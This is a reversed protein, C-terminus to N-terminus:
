GREVPVAVENRRLFPLSFPPDYFYAVAEGSATWGSATLSQRLQAKRRDVEIGHRFGSFGLVAMDQAAIDRLTVRPDTPVPATQATLGAPLFFQLAAGAGTSVPITMALRQSAGGAAGVGVPKTMPLNQRATNAGTIYAFLLRFAQTREGAGGGDRAAVEAAVRPGYHRIEVGDGLTAIVTFAPEETSSRKGFVRCAM